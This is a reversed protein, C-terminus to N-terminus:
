AGRTSCALAVLSMEIDQADLHRYKFHYLFQKMLDNIQEDSNSDKFNYFYESFIIAAAIKENVYLQFRPVGTLLQVPKCRLFWYLSYAIRKEKNTHAIGHFEKLRITDAFYSCIM